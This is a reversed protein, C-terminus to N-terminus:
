YQRHAAQQTSLNMNKEREEAEVKRDSDTRKKRFIEEHM